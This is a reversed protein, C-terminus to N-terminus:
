FKPLFENENPLHVFFPTDTTFILKEKCFVMPFQM